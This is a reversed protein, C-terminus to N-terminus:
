NGASTSSLKTLYMISMEGGPAGYSLLSWVAFDINHKERSTSALMFVFVYVPGLAQHYTVENAMTSQLGDHLNWQDDHFPPVQIHPSKLRLQM